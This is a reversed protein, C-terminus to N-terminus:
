RCADSPARLWRQGNLFTKDGDFRVEWRMLSGGDPALVLVATTQTPSEIRWQGAGSSRGAGSANAGPVNMTMSSEGAFSYRGNRCLHLVRHAAMGGGAGGSNYRSFYHLMQGSLLTSWQQDVGTAAPANPQAAVSAPAGFTTSRALGEVLQAYAADNKRPGVFFFIVSSGTPAILALARGVNAENQYRCAIRAGQMEPPATPQLLGAGLDRPEALWAAIQAPSQGTRLLAIGQGELATSRMLVLRSQADEGYQGVFGEPIVFAVGIASAEVAAGGAYTRKHVLEEASAPAAGGGLALAACLLTPLARRDPRLM